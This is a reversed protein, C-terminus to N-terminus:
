KVTEGALGFIHITGTSSSVCIWASDLSFAMYNIEAREMGRRLEAVPEGTRADWVRVM